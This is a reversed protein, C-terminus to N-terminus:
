PTAYRHVSVSLRRRGHRAMLAALSVELRTNKLHLNEWYCVQHRGPEHHFAFNGYTEFESFLARPDRRLCDVIAQHWPLGGRREITSRMEQLIRREFLMGHAIFSKPQISLDGLLPRLVRHYARYREDSYRFITGGGRNLFAQRRTLITDADNVLTHAAGTIVDGNLKLIQQALWGTRDRGRWLFRLSDRSCPLVEGDEVVTVKGGISGLARAKPTVVVYREVPHLLNAELSQLVIELSLFDKPVAPVIVAVPEASPRELDEPPRYGVRGWTRHHLARGKTRVLDLLDVISSLKSM